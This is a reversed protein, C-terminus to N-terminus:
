GPAAQAPGNWAELNYFIDQESPTINPALEPVTLLVDRAFGLPIFPVEQKFAGSFAGALSKRENGRAARYAEYKENLGSNEYNTWNLAGGKYLFASLEFGAPLLARGVYIDFSRNKVATKYDDFTQRNVTARVGLESFAESLTKAVSEMYPNDAGCLIELTFEKKKSGNQFLLGGSEDKTMGAAEFLSAAAAADPGSKVAGASIDTGAPSLPVDSPDMLGALEKNALADRDIAASLARRVLPDSLPAKGTNVGLFIMQSTPFSYTDADSRYPTLSAGIKSEEVLDIEGTQFGYVLIDPKDAPILRITGYPMPKGGHWGSFAALQRGGDADESVTYRGTGDPLSEKGDGSRIIPVCLKQDLAGDPKKLTIQVTDDGVAKVSAVDKLRESYVASKRALDLSYKVDAASLTSGGHFLVGGKLRLTWVNGSVEASECLLPQAGFDPGQRFLGDYILGAIQLNLRGIDQYPNFTSDAQFALGVQGDFAKVTNDRPKIVDAQVAAETDSVQVDSMDCSSSFLTLAILLSVALFRKAYM